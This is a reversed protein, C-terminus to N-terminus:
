VKRRCYIVMRFSIAYGLSILVSSYFDFSQNETVAYPKQMIFLAIYVLVSFIIALKIFRWGQLLQHRIM